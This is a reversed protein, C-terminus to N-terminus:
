RAPAVEATFREALLRTFAQAGERTLHERDAHVQPDYLAPYLNAKNFALIRGGVAAENRFRLDSQDLLPAVIFIVNAGHDHIKQAYRRYAAESIPDLVRPSGEAVDKAIEDRYRSYDSPPMNESRPEFGRQKALQDQESASGSSNNVTEEFDQAAGINALNKFCVALHERVTGSCLAFWASKWWARPKDANVAKTIAMWTLAPNHWYLFRLTSQNENGGNRRRAPQTPPRQAARAQRSLPYVEELEIFVWKLKPPHERLIQDLIYFSEPPHMGPIGFNFSHTPVGAGASTRDFTEPVVHRYIHSSGIFVTDFEDKHRTFFRFKSNVQPVEPFPLLLHLLLCTAAFAGLGAIVSVVRPGPHAYVTGYGGATEPRPLPEGRQDV